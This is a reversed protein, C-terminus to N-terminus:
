KSSVNLYLNGKWGALSLWSITAWISSAFSFCSKLKSLHPRYSLLLNNKVVCLIAWGSPAPSFHQSLRLFCNKSILNVYSTEIFALSLALMLYPPTQAHIYLDHMIWLCVPSCLIEDPSEVFCIHTYSQPHPLGHLFSSAWAGVLTM